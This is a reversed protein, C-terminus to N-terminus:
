RWSSTAMSANLFVERLRDRRDAGLLRGPCGYLDPELVLHPDALFGLARADPGALSRPGALDGIKACAAGIQEAGDAGLSRGARGDDHLAGVGLAHLMMEVLDAGVDGGASVGNEDQILGTPVGGALESPGGVDGKKGSGGLDGSSLGASFTQSYRRPRHSEFWM